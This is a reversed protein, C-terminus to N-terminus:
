LKLRPTLAWYAIAVSTRTKWLFQRLNNM